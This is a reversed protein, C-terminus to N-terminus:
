STPPEAYRKARERLAHVAGSPANFMGLTIVGDPTPRHFDSGGTMALDYRKALGRLNLRVEETNDPHVVEVGDLGLPALREILAEYHKVRAPHALVACAGANHLREIADEPSLRKRAVYAPAGEGIYRNFADKISEAHGAEVLARAVHPRTISAGEAIQLVREFSVPVGVEVLRAVMRQGRHFRDERVGKLWEQFPAGDELADPRIFYGLIDVL